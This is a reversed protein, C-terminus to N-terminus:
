MNMFIVIFNYLQQIAFALYDNSILLFDEFFAINKTGFPVGWANLNAQMIREIYAGAKSV